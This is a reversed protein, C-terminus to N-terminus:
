YDRYDPEPSSEKVKKKSFNPAEKGKSLTPIPMDDFSPM